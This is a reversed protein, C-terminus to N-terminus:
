VVRGGFPREEEKSSCIRYPNRRKGRTLDSDTPDPKRSDKERRFTGGKKKKKGFLVKGGQFSEFIKSNRKIEWGGVLLNKENKRGEKKQTICPGMGPVTTDQTKLRLVVNKCRNKEETIKRTEGKEDHCELKERKGQKRLQRSSRRKKKHHPNKAKAKPEGNEL